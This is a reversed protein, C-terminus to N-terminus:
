LNKRLDNVKNWPVVRIHKDFEFVCAFTDIKVIKAQTSVEGEIKVTVTEGVLEKFDFGEKAVTAGAKKEVTKESM